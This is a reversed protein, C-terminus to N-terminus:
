VPLIWCTLGGRKDGVILQLDSSEDTGYVGIKIVESRLTAICDMRGAVADWVIINGNRDGTVIAGDDGVFRAIVVEATHGRFDMIRRGTRLDLTHVVSDRGVTVAFESDTSVAVSEIPSSLRESVRILARNRRSWLRITGDWSASLIRDGDGIDVIDSIADLHGLLRVEATGTSPWLYVVGRADGAVVHSGDHSLRAIRIPNAHAALRARLVCHALDWLLVQGDDGASLAVTEDNSVVLTTLRRYHGSLRAVIGGDAMDIVRILGNDASALLRTARNYVAVKIPLLSAPAINHSRLLKGSRLDWLSVSSDSRAAVALRVKSDISIGTILSHGGQRANAAEVDLNWVVATGDWSATCFAGEATLRTVGSIQDAHGGYTRLSEGHSAEWVRVTRDRGVTIVFDGSTDFQISLGGDSHGAFTLPPDDSRDLKWIKIIGEASISAFTDKRCNTAMAVVGASHGDFIRLCNGSNTDWLRATTDWSCTMVQSDDLFATEVLGDTHGTLTAMLEGSEVSWLKATGDWSGTIVLHGDPSYNVSSIVDAHGRLIRKSEAEPSWDWVIASADMAATAVTRLHPCVAISTVQASHGDLRRIASGDSLMWAIVSNDRAASVAFRADPSVAVVQVSERHPRIRVLSRGTHIDWVHCAGDATTTVCLNKAEVLCISTLPGENPAFVVRQANDLGGTSWRPLLHRGSLSKVYGIANGALNSSGSITRLAIQQAVYGAHRTAESRLHHSERTITDALDQLSLSTVEGEIRSSSRRLSASLAEPGIDTCARELFEWDYAQPILDDSDMLAVHDLLFRLAYDSRNRRWDRCFRLLRESYKVGKVLPPTRELLFSQFRPHALSYGESSRVIHRHVRILARELNEAGWEDDGIGLLELDAYSVPGLSVALIGLLDRTADSDAARRLEEWWHLFYEALGLPLFGNTPYPSRGDRMDEALYRVYFPDQEDDKKSPVRAAQLIAKRQSRDDIAESAAGGAKRFLEIAERETLGGLTVWTVAQSPIGQSRLWADKDIGTDRVTLIGKAGGRMQRGVYPRLSFSSEDIGDFLLTRSLPESLLRLARSRRQQLDTEPSQPSLQEILNRLFWDETVWDSYWRSTFFHPIYRDPDMRYLAAALATKGFGPPGAIVLWGPKQSANFEQIAARIGVRDVYLEAYDDLLISFQTRLQAPQHWQDGSIRELDGLTPLGLLSAIKRSASDARAAMRAVPMIQVAAAGQRPAHAIVTGIAIGRWFVLSGSLGGWPVKSKLSDAPLQVTELLADRLLLVGSEHGDTARITGNIEATSRLKQEANYQFLPYGIAQCNEITHSRTRDVAGWSMGEHGPLVDATVRLVAVDLPESAIELNAESEFGDSARIVKIASAVRKTAADYTSHAATLVLNAKIIYGSGVQRRGSDLEAVVAVVYELPIGATM